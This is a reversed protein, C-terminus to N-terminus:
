EQNYVVKVIKDKAKLLGMAATMGAEGAVRITVDVWSDDGTKSNHLRVDHVTAEFMMLDSGSETDEKQKKNGM